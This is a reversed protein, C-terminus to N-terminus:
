KEEPIYPIIGTEYAAVKMEYPAQRVDVIHGGFSVMWVMPDNIVKSPLCWKPDMQYIRFM